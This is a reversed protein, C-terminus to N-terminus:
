ILITVMGIECERLYMLGNPTEPHKITIIAEGRDDFRTPEAIQYSKDYLWVLVWAGVIYTDAIRQQTKNM